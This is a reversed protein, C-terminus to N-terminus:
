FFEKERTERTWELSEWATILNGLIFQGRTFSAREPQIIKVITDKIQNGNAFYHAEGIWQGKKAEKSILKILGANVHEGM